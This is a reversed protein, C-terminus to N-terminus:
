RRREPVPPPTEKRFAKWGKVAWFQATLVLDDIVAQKQAGFVRKVHKRTYDPVWGSVGIALTLM